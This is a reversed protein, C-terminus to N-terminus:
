ICYKGDLSAGMINRLDFQIGQDFVWWALELFCFFLLGDFEHCSIKLAHIQSVGYLAHRPIGYYFLNM